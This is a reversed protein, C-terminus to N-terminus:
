DGRGGTNEEVEGYDGGGGPGVLGPGYGGDRWEAESSGGPKIGGVQSM